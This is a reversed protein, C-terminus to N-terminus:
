DERSKKKLAGADHLLQVIPHEWYNESNTNLEGEIGVIKQIHNLVTQINMLAMASYTGYVHKYNEILRPIKM